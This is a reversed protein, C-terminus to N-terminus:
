YGKARVYNLMNVNILVFDERGFWNNNSAIIICHGPIWKSYHDEGNPNLKFALGNELYLYGTQHDIGSILHTYAGSAFPGMHLLVRVYNGTRLNTIWYGGGSSFYGDNPTIMLPDNYNWQYRMCYLDHPNVKWQSGDELEILDRSASLAALYHRSYPNCYSDHYSIPTPRREAYYPEAIALAPIISLSLFATRLVAKM